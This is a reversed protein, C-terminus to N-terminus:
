RICWRMASRTAADPRTDPAAKRVSTVRFVQSRDYARTLRPRNRNRWAWWAMPSNLDVTGPPKNFTISGPVLLAPDAGPYMAPDPAKEAVTVYGTEDVFRAFDDNTVATEDIWFGDVEVEVVPQEEPYHRDSGM